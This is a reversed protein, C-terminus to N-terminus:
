TLFGNVSDHSNFRVQYKPAPVNQAFEGPLNGNGPSRYYAVIIVFDTSKKTSRAMGCGMESTKKWVVQAFHITNKRWGPETFDYQRIENYWIRTVVDGRIEADRSMNLMCINEGVGSQESYQVVGKEAIHEAWHQAQRALEESWKLRPCGHLTRFHNHAEFCQEQFKELARLKVELLPM